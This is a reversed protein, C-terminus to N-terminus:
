AGFHAAGLGLTIVIVGMTLILIGTRRTKIRFGGGSLEHHYSSDGTGSIAAIVGVLCLLFGFAIVAQPEM